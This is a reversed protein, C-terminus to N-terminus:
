KRTLIFTSNGATLMLTNGTRQVSYNYIKDSDVYWWKLSGKGDSFSYTYKFNMTGSKNTFTGTGDGKFVYTESSDESVWTGLISSEDNTEDDDNSCGVMWVSMALMALMMTLYKVTKM